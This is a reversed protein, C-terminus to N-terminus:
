KAKTLDRIGKYPGPSKKSDIIRGTETDIKVYRGTLPNLMQGRGKVADVRRMEGTNTAM